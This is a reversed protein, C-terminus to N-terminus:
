IESRLQQRSGSVGHRFHKQLWKKLQWRKFYTMPTKSVKARGAITQGPNVILDLLHDTKTEKRLFHACGACYTIVRQNKAEGARKVGWQRAFDPRLFPTSGGEGCCYTVAKNHDMEVLDADMKQLLGRVDQHIRDAFRTSCPDHVTMTTLPLKPLLDRNEKQNFVEYVTKVSIKEAYKEFIGYCSPCGVIVRQISHNNLIGLLEGFRNSFYKQRGLDHTPKSCCDLVLGMLPEKRKLMLFIQRVVGARSGSLACGPFFITDCNEPFYYHSLSKSIGRKEYNVITDHEKFAGQSRDVAIRRMTLFMACPDLDKPCVAACLGCLSCQFSRASSEDTKKYWNDAIEKPTGNEQLFACENVCIKCGICDAAITQIHFFHANM